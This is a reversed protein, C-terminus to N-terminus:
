EMVDNTTKWPIPHASINKGVIQKNKNRQLIM